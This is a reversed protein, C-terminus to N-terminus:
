GGCSGCTNRGILNLHLKYLDDYIWDLIILYVTGGECDGFYFM